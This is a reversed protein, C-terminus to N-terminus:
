FLVQMGFAVSHRSLLETVDSGGATYTEIQGQYGYGIWVLTQPALFFKGGFGPGAVPDIEDHDPYYDLGGTFRFYLAFWDNVAPDVEVGGLWQIHTYSEEESFVYTANYALATVVAFRGFLFYGFEPELSVTATDEAGSLYVGLFDSHGGLGLMYHGKSLYETGALVPAALAAVVFCVSIIRQVAKM